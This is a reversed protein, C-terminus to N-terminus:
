RTISLIRFAALCDPASAMWGPYPKRDSFASNACATMSAPRIQIPGEGWDIMSRPSLTAARCMAVLAPAGSTGPVFSGTPPAPSTTAKASSCPRGTAM